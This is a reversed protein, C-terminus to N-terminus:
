APVDRAVFVTSGSTLRQCLIAEGTVNDVVHFAEDVDSVALQVLDTRKRSLPNYVVVTRDADTTIMNDLKTFVKEKAEDAFRQADEVFTRHMSKETEYYYELCGKTDKMSLPPQVIGESYAGMTHEAYNLLLNYAQWIDERPYGKGGLATAITGFTEIAPVADAVIRYQGTWKADTSHQDAWSNPADKDFM